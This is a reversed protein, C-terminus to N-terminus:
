PLRNNYPVFVGEPNFDYVWAHLTWLQFTTNNSWVDDDGVFGRPPTATLDTPVAYEVAALRLTGDSNEQYVLIEPQRPDFHGDVLGPNLFHWGMHPMYLNIDVYGADLAAQVDFFRGAAQRASELQLITAPLIRDGHGPEGCNKEHGRSTGLAPPDGALLASAALTIAMSSLTSVVSFRNFSKM